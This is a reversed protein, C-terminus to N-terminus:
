YWQYMCWAVIYDLIAKAMIARTNEKIVDNFTFLIDDETFMLQTHPMKTYIVGAVHNAATTAFMRLVAQDDSSLQTLDADLDKRKVNEGKYYTRMAVEYLVEKFPICVIREALIDRLRASMVM